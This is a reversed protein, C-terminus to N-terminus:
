PHASTTTVPAAHLHGDHNVGEGRGDDDNAKHVQAKHHHVTKHTTTTSTPDAAATTTKSTSTTPPASAASSSSTQSASNGGCGALGVAVAIMGLMARRM